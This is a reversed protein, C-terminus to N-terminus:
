IPAIEIFDTNFKAGKSELIERRFSIGVYKENGEDIVYSNKFFDPHSYVNVNGIRELVSLLGGTYDMHHHSIMIRKITSLDKNFCQVNNIIARGVGTDFLFNGQNTEIFVVWGDEVLAGVNSFVCNECLVRAKGKMGLGKKNNSNINWIDIYFYIM